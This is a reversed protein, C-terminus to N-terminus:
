LVCISSTVDSLESSSADIFVYISIRRDHINPRANLLSKYIQPSHFLNLPHLNQSQLGIWIHPRVVMPEALGLGEFANRKKNSYLDMGTFFVHM